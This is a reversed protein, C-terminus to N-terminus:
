GRASWLSSARPFEVEFMVDRTMVRYRVSGGENGEGESGKSEKVIPLVMSVQLVLMDAGGDGESIEGRSGSAADATAGETSGSGPSGERCKGV